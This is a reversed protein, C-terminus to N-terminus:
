FHVSLNMTNQEQRMLGIGGTRIDTPFFYDETIIKAYDQIGIAVTRAM